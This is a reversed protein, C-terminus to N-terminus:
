APVARGALAAVAKAARDMEVAAREAAVVREAYVRRWYAAAEERAELESLYVQEVDWGVRDADFAEHGSMRHAKLPGTVSGYRCVYFTGGPRLVGDRVQVWSARETATTMM